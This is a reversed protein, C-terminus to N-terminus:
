LFCQPYPLLFCEGVLGGGFCTGSLGFGVDFGGLGGTQLLLGGGVSALCVDGVVLEVLLPGRPCVPDPRVCIPFVRTRWGSLLVPGNAM